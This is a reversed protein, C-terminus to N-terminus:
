IYLKNKMFKNCGIIVNDFDKDSSHHKLYYFYYDGFISKDWKFLFYLKSENETLQRSSTISMFSRFHNINAIIDSFRSSSIKSVVDDIIKKDDNSM